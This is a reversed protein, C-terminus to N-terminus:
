RFEIEPLWRERHSKETIWYTYKRICNSFKNNLEDIVFTLNRINEVVFEPEIDAWGIAVNLRQLCPKTKLFNLIPILAKHDKLYIDLKYHELGISYYDIFIRFGKIIGKQILNKIRYNIQQSSLKFKKSLKTLPIRANEALENLIEYDIDNIKVYDKTSKVIYQERKPDTPNEKIIYSKKYDVTQIYLSIAASTFYEEYLDLTKNWFQYFKYNDKIWLVVVLDIDGKASKVAWANKLRSFYNIIEEKIHADIYQFKIYIRFVDYGLKFTDVATWYGIIIGEREMRKIRYDVVQKSLGVKKGIQANSQRCNLDLQYLIKRDKLDLETM